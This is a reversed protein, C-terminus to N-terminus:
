MSLLRKREDSIKKAYRKLRKALSDSIIQNWKEYFAPLQDYQYRARYDGLLNSSIEQVIEIPVARAVPVNAKLWLCLESVLRSENWQHDIVQTGQLNSIRKELEFRDDVLAVTRFPPKCGKELDERRRRLMYGYEVDVNETRFSFECIGVGCQDTLGFIRESQREETRHFRAILPCLDAVTLTAWVCIEFPAYLVHYPDSVFVNKVRSGSLITEAAALTTQHRNRTPITRQM